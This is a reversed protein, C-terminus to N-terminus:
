SQKLNSVTMIAQLQNRNCVYHLIVELLAMSVSIDPSIKLWKGSKLLSM